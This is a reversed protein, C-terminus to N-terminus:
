IWSKKQRITLTFSLQISNVTRCGHKGNGFSLNGQVRRRFKVKLCERPLISEKLFRLNTCLRVEDVSHPTFILEEDHDDDGDDDHNYERSRPSGHLPSM